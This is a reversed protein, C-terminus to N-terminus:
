TDEGNTDDSDDEQGGDEPLPEPLKDPKTVFPINLSELLRVFDVHASIIGTKDNQLLTIVINHLKAKLMESINIVELECKPQDLGFNDEVLQPILWKNVAEIFREVEAKAADLMREAHVEAQIYTGVAARDQTVTREPVVLARLIMIELDEITRHYVDSRDSVNLEEFGWKMTGNEDAEFPIVVIQNEFTGGLINAMYEMMDIQEGDPNERYGSPAHGIIPPVAKFRAYDALLARFLEAYYWYPYADELDSEGWFGGTDFQNVLVFSKWAGVPEEDQGTPPVQVFGDFDKTTEDILFRDISAPHVFKIKKYVLAPKDWVTIEDGTDEDIRTAKVRTSHWVKEHPAVGYAYMLKVSSQILDNLLKDVLAAKIFAAIDPDDCKVRAEKIAVAIPAVKIILGLKAMPHRRIKDLIDFEIPSSRFEGMNRKFAALSPAERGRYSIEKLKPKPGPRAFEKVSEWFGRFGGPKRPRKVEVFTLKPFDMKSETVPTEM